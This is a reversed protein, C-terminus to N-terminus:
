RLSIGAVSPLSGDADFCIPEWPGHPTLGLRDAEDALGESIAFEEVSLTDRIVVVRGQAPTRGNIARIAAEVAQRDNELVMPIRAGALETSTLGNLYTKEWDISEFLHRPITDAAGVGIANGHTEPTLNLVTLRTAELGGTAARSIWRGTVNPDMGSGSLNKGLRGVVLLDVHQFPLRAMWERAEDLLAREEALMLAKPLVRIRATEERGNEVVAVGCPVPVRRLLLEGAEPLVRHFETFGRRHVSAAGVHKGFGIVLMKCLGSEHPGHFDTHPKVRNIPIVGDRSLAARSFYLPTGDNLRAVEEVAMDDDIAVGMTAETIGLAALVERQGAATAGGHSAMAPIIVADAGEARILDIVQKVILAISRIGRSGVGLAYTKGAKIETRVTPWQDVVARAPDVEQLGKMVQTVRRFQPWVTAEGEIRLNWM